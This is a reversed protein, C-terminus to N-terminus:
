IKYNKIDTKNIEDMVYSVVDKEIDDRSRVDEDACEITYFGYRDAIELFAREANRLHDESAEHQDLAETRHKGLEISFRLPMHLFVKIDAHPLELLDFELKDLWDYMEFREQKDEIKGGQHAMNSYSYRDLIVNVGNDLLANIKGINYKRDAAYYLAAVKPDVNIAGEPFWGDCIYGKGLYPGGVIRGTPTDYQPFGTKAVKMGANKLADYLRNSQTEKGSCDTGEIVILKGRMSGGIQTYYLQM